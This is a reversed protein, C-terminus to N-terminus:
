SPRSRSRSARPMDRARGRRAARRREARDARLDEQIQRLQAFMATMLNLLAHDGYPVADRPDSVNDASVVHAFDPVVSADTQMQQLERTINFLHSLLVMVYYLFRRTREEPSANRFDEEVDGLEMAWVGLGLWDKGYRQNDKIIVDTIKSSRQHDKDNKWISKVGLVTFLLHVFHVKLITPSRNQICFADGQEIIAPLGGQALALVVLEWDLWFFRDFGSM